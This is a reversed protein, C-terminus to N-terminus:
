GWKEKGGNRKKEVSSKEHIIKKKGQTPVCEGDWYNSKKLRIKNNRSKAGLGRRKRVSEKKRRLKEAIEQCGTLIKRGKNVKEWLWPERTEKGTTGILAERIKQKWGANNGTTKSGVMRSTTRSVPVKGGGTGRQM